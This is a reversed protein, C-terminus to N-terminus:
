ENGEKKMWMNHGTATWDGTFNFLLRHWRASRLLDFRDESAAISNNDLTVSDGSDLKYYNSMSSTTPNSDYFVKVRSLLSFADDEGYDGTTISSSSSTGVLSQLVNSTNYIAPVNNSSSLFGSGYTVGTFDGYTSYIDGIDSYAIDPTRYDFPVWMDLDHRGWQNTKYNYAVGSDLKNADASAFFWYVISKSEDHLACVLNQKNRQLKNFVTEKIVGEGIPVPRAGDFSYFDDEGMFLLRPDANSGINVISEQSLAGVRGPIQRFEWIAPPGVYIGYFMSTKKFAIIGEGFRVGATIPGSTAVLIGTACQTAVSPTWDTYDGLASCWWRNTDDGYTVENTNFLFVFNNVTEVIAAAPAGSIDAFAATTSAQLTDTKIAAISVDGYQAFRWRATSSGSYDGGVARTRDTYASTGAEYLKTGTGVFVRSSDDLKSITAAGQVTAPVATALEGTVPSPAGKFGDLTPIVGSCDTFIGSTKEPADPAYGLWKIM